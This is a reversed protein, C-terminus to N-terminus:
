RLGAAPASAPRLYGAVLATVEEVLRGDELAEPREAVAKHALSMVAQAVVFAALSPDEPGIKAAHRELYARVLRAVRAEIDGIRALDGVRPVQEVLVKHLKPDALNARVGGEVWARVAVHPPSDAHASFSSEVLSLMEEAHREILAAVLAGKNPFYDYLSGVGYGAVEAVRITTTREYGERVLVRATAELLAEVTARSREQKPEKRPRNSASRKLSTSETVSSRGRGSELAADLTTALALLGGDENARARVRM